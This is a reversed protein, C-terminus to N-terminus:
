SEPHEGRIRQLARFIQAAGIEGVMEQGDLVPLHLAGTSELTHLVEACSADPTVRQLVRGETFCCICDASGHALSRFRMKNFRSYTEQTPELARLLDQPVLISSVRRPGGGEALVWAHDVSLFTEFVDRVPYHAPLFVTEALDRDM